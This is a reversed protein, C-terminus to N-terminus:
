AWPAWELEFFYSYPASLDGCTDAPGSPIFDFPLDCLRLVMLGKVVLLSPAAMRSMVGAISLCLLPDRWM